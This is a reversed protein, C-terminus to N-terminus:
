DFAEPHIARALAELGDVVRPGPRTILIDEPLPIVRGEAVATMEDWGSREAVAEATITPDYAADGLVIVEPDATVLDELAIATTLPDGTIPEGGAADVLSALFSDEGATYITGEFISVEYFTRPRDAGAVAAEVTAVKAAMESTIDAAEAQADLAVGVLEIDANVEDLSEPYLVLVPYGLDALAEIDTSATLENGAALILDPEAAVIAERDVPGFSVVVPLDEITALVDAPYGRRYEPVGVLQDCADLACAIETNSPALSVIREPEAELTVERGSDDILTVPYTTAPETNPGVTPSPPGSSTQSTGTPTCAAVLLALVAFLSFFIPVRLRSSM